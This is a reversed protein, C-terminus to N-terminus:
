LARMFLLFSCMRYNRLDTSPLFITLLHEHSSIEMVEATSLLCIFDRFNLSTEKTPCTKSLGAELTLALSRRLMGLLCLSVLECKHKM